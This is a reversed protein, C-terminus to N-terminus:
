CACLLVCVLVSLLYQTIYDMVLQLFMAELVSCDTQDSYM